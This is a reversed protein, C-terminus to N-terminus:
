TCCINQGIISKMRPFSPVLAPWYSYCKNCAQELHELPPGPFIPWQKSNPRPGNRLDDEGCWFMDLYTFVVRWQSCLMNLTHRFIGQVCKAEILMMGCFRITFHLYLEVCEQGRSYTVAFSWSYNILWWDSSHNGSVYMMNCLDDVGQFFQIRRSFSSTTHTRAHTHTYTYLTM